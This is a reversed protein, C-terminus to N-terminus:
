VCIYKCKSGSFFVLFFQEETTMILYPPSAWILNGAAMADGLVTPGTILEGAGPLCIHYTLLTLQAQHPQNLSLFLIQRIPHVPSFAMWLCKVQSTQSFENFGHKFHMETVGWEPIMGGARAVGKPSICEAGMVGMDAPGSAIKEPFCLPMQM